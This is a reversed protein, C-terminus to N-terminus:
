RINPTNLTTLPIISISFFIEESPKLENDSYYDKNYQISATLCDNKYEYILNYFETFDTKKNRRTRYKLSYADNFNYATENSLFSENGIEDDEQLFEFSTVFKNVSIDTKFSNYNSSQFDSDMSFNYDFKLNKNPEFILSGIYDSGKNNLTSKTPLNLEENDRLVTALGAKIIDNGSLKSKLSYEGGLTLSQGGEVSNDLSLRNQTFINNMDIKRDLTKLDKNANPSYMLSGKATFFSDFFEGGKKLPYSMDYFISGYNESNFKNKYESSNDGESTINKLLM